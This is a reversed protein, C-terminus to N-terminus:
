GGDDCMCGLYLFMCLMWKFVNLFISLSFILAALSQRGDIRTVGGQRERLREKEEKGLWGVGQAVLIILILIIIIILFLSGNSLLLIPMIIKDHSLSRQSETQFTRNRGEKRKRRSIVDVENQTQTQKKEM